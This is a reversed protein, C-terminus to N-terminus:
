LYIRAVRPQTLSNKKRTRKRNDQANTESKAWESDSLMYYVFYIQISLRNLATTTIARHTSVACCTYRYAIRSCSLEDFPHIMYLCIRYTYRHIYLLCLSSAYSCRVISNMKYLFMAIIYRRYSTHIYVLIHLRYTRHTSDCHRHM